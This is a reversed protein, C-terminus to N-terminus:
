GPDVNPWYTTQSSQSRSRQSGGGPAGEYAQGLSSGSIEGSTPSFTPSNMKGRRRTWGESERGLTLYRRRGGASFRIAYTRGSKGYREVVQGRCRAAM